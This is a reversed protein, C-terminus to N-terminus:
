IYLIFNRVMLKSHTSRYYKLYLFNIVYSKLGECTKLVQYILQSLFFFITVQGKRVFSLLHFLIIIFPVFAGKHKKLHHIPHLRKDLM